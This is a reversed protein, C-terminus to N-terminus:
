QVNCYMVNVNNQNRSYTFWKYQKHMDKAIGTTIMTIISLANFNWTEKM